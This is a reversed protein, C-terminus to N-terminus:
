PYPDSCILHHTEQTREGEFGTPIEKRMLSQHDREKIRGRGDINMRAESGPGARDVWITVNM